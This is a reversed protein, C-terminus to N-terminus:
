EILSSLNDHVIKLDIKENIEKIFGELDSSNIYADMETNVDYSESTDPATFDEFKQLVYAMNLSVLNTTGQVFDFTIKQREKDGSFAVDLAFIGLASNTISFKGKSGGDMYNSFDLDKIAINTVNSTSTSPDNFTISMDGDYTAGTQKGDSKISIVEISAMKLWLEFSVDSKNKTTRYGFARPIGDIDISFERGMVQGKNDVWVTMILNNELALFNEKNTQLDSLVTKLGETYEEATIAGTKVCLDSISKDEIAATLMEEAITYLEENTLEVSIETYKSTNGKKDVSVNKKLTVSNLNNTIIQTYKKLTSNILEDTLPNNVIFTQMDKLSQYPLSSNLDTVVSDMDNLSMSLYAKNLTPIRYHMMGDNFDIFYELDIPEGDNVNLSATMRNKFEKSMMKYKLGITKLDPMNLMGTLSPDIKATLNIDQGYGDKLMKKTLENTIGYNKSLSNIQATLNETEVKQYYANPKMTAVAIANSITPSLFVTAIGVVVVVLAAAIIVPFLWKPAKKREMDAPNLPEKSTYFTSEDPEVPPTPVNDIGNENENLDSM